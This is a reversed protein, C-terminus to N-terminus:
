ALRGGSLSNLIFPGGVNNLLPGFIVVPVRGLAVNIAKSLSGLAPVTPPDQVGIGYISADAGQEPVYGSPMPAQAQEFVMEVRSASLMEATQSVKVETLVLNKTIISKTTISVTVTENKFTSIINELISLEKIVTTVKLKTPQIIKVVELDKALIEQTTQKDKNTDLALPFDTVAASPSIEVDVVALGKWIEAKADSGLNENTAIFQPRSYHTTLISDAM